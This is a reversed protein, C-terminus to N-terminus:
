LEIMLKAIYGLNDMDRIFTEEDANVTLYLISKGKAWPISGCDIVAERGGGCGSNTGKVSPYVSKVIDRSDVVWGCYCHPKNRNVMTQIDDVTAYYATPYKKMIVNKVINVSELREINYVFSPKKSIAFLLKKGYLNRIKPTRFADKPVDVWGRNDLNWQLGLRAGGTWEYFEIKIEEGRNLIQRTSGEKWTFGQLRWNDIVLEGNLHLRSGDDSGLRFKVATANEPYMIYGEISVYVKEKRTDLVNGSSWNMNPTDIRKPISLSKGRTGSSNVCEFVYANLGDELEIDAPAPPPALQGGYCKNYARNRANFDLIQNHANDIMTQVAKEYDQKTGLGANTDPYASGDVRCGKDTFVKRYCEVPTPSFKPDCPDPQKGYCLPMYKKADSWNNSNAYKNYLRMDALVSKWDRSNWWSTDVKNPASTGSLSCGAGTWLKNLCANSHPGTNMTNSICPYDGEYKSCDQQRVLGIDEGTLTDQFNCADEPYKPVLKGNVSKAVMAKKSTPCWGCIKADGIMENCSKVKSCIEREQYKSYGDSTFVWGRPCADVIPGDKNGYVYKGTSFCYGCDNGNIQSPSTLTKCLAIKQDIESVMRGNISPINTKTLQEGVPKSTDLELFNDLEPNSFYIADKSRELYLGKEKDFEYSDKIAEILEPNEQKPSQIVPYVDLGEVITKNSHWIYISVIVLICIFVIGLIYANKM